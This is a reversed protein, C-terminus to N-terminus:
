SKRSRLTVDVVHRDHVNWSCRRTLRVITGDPVDFRGGKRVSGPFQNARKPPVKAPALKPSPKAFPSSDFSPKRATPPPPPASATKTPAPSAPAPLVAVDVPPAFLGAKPRTASMEENLKALERSMNAVDHNVNSGGAASAAQLHAVSSQQESEARVVSGKLRESSERLRRNEEELPQVRCVLESNRRVTQMLDHGQRVVMTQLRRHKGDLNGLVEKLESIENRDYNTKKYFDWIAAKWEGQQQGLSWGIGAMSESVRGMEEKAASINRGQALRQEAAARVVKQGLVATEGLLSRLRSEMATLKEVGSMVAERGRCLTQDLMLMSRAQSELREDLAAQVLDLERRIWAGILPDEMQWEGIRTALEIFRFEGCLQSLDRVNAGRTEAIPSSIVAFFVRRSGSWVGFDIRYPKSLLEPKTQFLRCKTVLSAKSAGIPEDNPVLSDM